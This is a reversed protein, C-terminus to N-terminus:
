IQKCGIALLGKQYSVVSFNARMNARYSVLEEGEDDDLISITTTGGGITVSPSTDTIVITFSETDETIADDTISGEFCARNTGALITVSSPISSYDTHTHPPPPLTISYTPM